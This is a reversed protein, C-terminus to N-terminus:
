SLAILPFAVTESTDHSAHQASAKSHTQLLLACGFHLCGSLTVINSRVFATMYGMLLRLAPWSHLGQMMAATATAFYTATGNCAVDIAPFDNCSSIHRNRIPLQM